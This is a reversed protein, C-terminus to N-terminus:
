KQKLKNYQELIEAPPEEHEVVENKLVTELAMRSTLEESIMKTSYSSKYGSLSYCRSWTESPHSIQYYCSGPLINAGTSGDVYFVFFSDIFVDPALLDWYNSKSVYSAIVPDCYECQSKGYINYDGPTTTSAQVTSLYYTYTFSNIITFNFVWTGRLLETRELNVNTPTNPTSTTTTPPPASNSGGGSGGCGVALLFVVLLYFCMSLSKRM